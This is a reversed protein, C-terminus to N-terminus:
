AADRYPATKEECWRWLAARTAPTPAGYRPLRALSRRRRDFYFGAPLDPRTTLWIITDAGEAPTRLVPAMLRAFRPLGSRLAPTDVWGPHMSRVRVGIPALRSDWADALAVQARKATAYAAAPRFHEAGIDLAGTGLTGAYMGGSSVFVVSSPAGARLLPALAATLLHPGLVHTAVTRECGDATQEYRPALAGAGHVLVSLHTCQEGIREALARVEGLDALDAAEGAVTGGSRRAIEAAAGASRRPDRGVVIVRVGRRALAEATAAGIGSTGGTVVATGPVAGSPGLPPWGALAARARIGLASWSLM